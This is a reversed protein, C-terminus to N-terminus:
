NSATKNKNIFDDVIKPKLNKYESEILDKYQSDEILGKMCKEFLISDVLRSEFYIPQEDDESDDEDEDNQLQKGTDINKCYKSNYSVIQKLNYYKPIREYEGTKDQEEPFMLRRIFSYFIDFMTEEDRNKNKNIASYKELTGMMASPGLMDENEDDSSEYNM